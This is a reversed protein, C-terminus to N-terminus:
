PMTADLELLVDGNEIKIPYVAVKANADHVGTQPDWEWGHWPCVVKGNLIVGDGLPGGRHLCINDMASYTGDVNAVCIEKNGCRFEKAQNIAPLESESTLKTLM